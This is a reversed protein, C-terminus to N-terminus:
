MFSLISRSSIMLMTGKSRSLCSVFPSVFNPDTMLRVGCWELICTATGVFHLKAISGDKFSGGQIPASAHTKVAQPDPLEQPEPDPPNALASRSDNPRLILEHAVRSSGLASMISPDAIAAAYRLRPM